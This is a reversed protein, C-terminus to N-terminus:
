AARPHERRWRRRKAVPSSGSPLGDLAQQGNDPAGADPGGVQPALPQGDPGIQQGPELPPGEERPPLDAVERLHDEDADSWQLLTGNVAAACNQIFTSVDVQTVKTPRIVPALRPDLGNLRMLQPIGHSNFVGAVAQTWTELAAIFLDIKSGGLAQTGVSQHGMLLWDALVTIAIETNKRNIAETISLQRSGGSTLLDLGFMPVKSDPYVDSPWLVGEEENRRIGNVIKLMNRAVAKQADTANDALYEAPITGVPLGALDREIGTAEYEELRRKYYWPRHASRYVSRGEPNGKAATTRFLLARELPIYKAGRTLQQHMGLVRDNDDLQWRTLSEQSRIPLSGWGILGDDYDSSPIGGPAPDQPGQRRKPVVEHYSWGFLIMSFIESLTDAWSVSMDDVVTHMFDAWKHGAARGGPVKGKEEPPDFEWEVRRGFNDIALSMGGIVPDNRMEALTAIGQRGRLVSLEEEHVIGGYARLGTGGIEAPVSGKGKAKAVDDDSM